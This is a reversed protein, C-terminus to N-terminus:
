LAAGLVPAFSALEAAGGRPGDVSRDSRTSRRPRAAWSSPRSRSGTAAPPMGTSSSGASPPCRRARGAPPGGAAFYATDAPATGAGHHSFLFAGDRAVAAETHTAYAGLVLAGGDAPAFASAARAADVVDYAPAGVADALLSLRVHVPDDVHVM